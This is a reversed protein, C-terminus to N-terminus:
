RRGAYLIGSGSPNLSDVVSSFKVVFARAANSRIDPTM